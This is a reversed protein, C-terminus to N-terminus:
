SHDQALEQLWNVLPEMNLGGQSSHPLSSYAPGSTSAVLIYKALTVVLMVLINQLEGMWAELPDIVVGLLQGVVGAISGSSQTAQPGFSQLKLHPNIIWCHAKTHGIWGCLVYPCKPPTNAM